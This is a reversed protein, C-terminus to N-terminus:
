ESGHVKGVCETTFLSYHVSVFGPDGKNITIILLDVAKIVGVAARDYRDTLDRVRGFLREDGRLIFVKVLMASKRYGTNTICNPLVDFRAAEFIATRGDGM